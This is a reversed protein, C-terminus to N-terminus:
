HKSYYHSCLFWPNGEWLPWGYGQVRGESRSNLPSPFNVGTPVLYHMLNALMFNDDLISTEKKYSFTWGVQDDRSSPFGQGERGKFEGKKRKATYGPDPTDDSRKLVEKQQIVLTAKETTAAEPRRELDPDPIIGEGPIMEKSELSAAM